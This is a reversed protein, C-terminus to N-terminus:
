SIPAGPDYVFRVFRVFYARARKTQVETPAVEVSSRLERLDTIIRPTVLSSPIISPQFLSLGLSLSLFLGRGAAGFYAYLRLAARASYISRPWFAMAISPVACARLMYNEASAETM